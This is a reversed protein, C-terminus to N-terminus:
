ASGPDLEEVAGVRAPVVEVPGVRAEDGDARRALRALRAVGERDRRRAGAGRGYRRRPTTVKSHRSASWTTRWARRLVVVAWGFVAPDSGAPKLEAVHM